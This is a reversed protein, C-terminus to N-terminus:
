VDVLTSLIRNIKPIKEFFKQAEEIPMDLVDSISKGKYLVERVQSNYRTGHCHECTVHVDPLFHM